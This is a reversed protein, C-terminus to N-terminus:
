EGLTFIVQGVHVAFLPVFMAPKLFHVKIRHDFTSLTYVVECGLRLGQRSATQLHLWLVTPFHCNQSSANWAVELSGNINHAALLVTKDLSYVLIQYKMKETIVKNITRLIKSALRDQVNTIEVRGVIFKCAM